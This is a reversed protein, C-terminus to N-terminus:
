RVNGGVDAGLGNCTYTWVINDGDKLEYDSCGYNPFWGNVKYMWGSQEGCDFEYLHNIGEIYYSDYMPTWSYEIHIGAYSCARKLVDFVTEGEAFQVSSTSLIIGNEPVYRDKGDELNDMNDLITDCRIQITCSKVDTPVAASESSTNEESQDSGGDNGGSSNTNKTTKDENREKVSNNEKENKVTQEPKESETNETIKDDATSEAAQNEEARNDLVEQLQQLTFCLNENGSCNQASKILFENLSEATFEEIETKIGDTTQVVSVCEGPNVTEFTGDETQVEVCGEYVNLTCSGSQVSVSFVTGTTKATNKGFGVYMMEPCDPMDAFIEGSAVEINVNDNDSENVTVETKENLIVSNKGTVKLEAQSGNKTEVIDGPKVQIGEDLSYGVGNRQINAIGSIKGSEIASTEKGFWGKTTGVAMIGCFAIVAILAAMIINSKRKKRKTEM